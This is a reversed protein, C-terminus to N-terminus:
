AARRDASRRSIEHGPGHEHVLRVRRRDVVLGPDRGSLEAALEGLPPALLRSLETSATVVRVDDVRGIECPRDLGGLDGKAAGADGDYEIRAQALAVVAVQVARGRRLDFSAAHAVDVHRKGTALAVPLDDLRGRTEQGVDGGAVVALLDDRDSM